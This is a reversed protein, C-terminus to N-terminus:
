ARRDQAAAGARRAGVVEHSVVHVRERQRRQRGSASRSRRREAPEGLLTRPELAGDWLLHAPWIM